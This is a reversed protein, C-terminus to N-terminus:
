RHPNTRLIQFNQNQPFGAVLCIVPITFLVTVVVAIMRGTIPVKSKETKLDNTFDTLITLEMTEM